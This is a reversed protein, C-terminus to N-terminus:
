KSAASEFLKLYEGYGEEVLKTKPVFRLAASNICYRMGGKDKPGDNFVHGLHADGSKSRVETRVLRHSSDTKSLIEADDIPKTFSPWGSGSDFKDKSSFLPKGSILDVYIGEAKNDWYQNSFPRETGNMKTVYYQEETLKSRLESDQALKQATKKGQAGSSDIDSM